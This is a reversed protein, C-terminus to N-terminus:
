WIEDMCFKEGVVGDMWANVNVYFTKTNNSCDNQITLTFQGNNDLADDKITGCKCDKLADKSCSSLATLTLMVIILKRM